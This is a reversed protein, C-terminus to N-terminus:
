VGVMVHSVGGVKVASVVCAHKEERLFAESHRAKSRFPEAWYHHAVFEDVTLFQPKQILERNVEFECPKGGVSHSEPHPVRKPIEGGFHGGCDCRLAHPEIQFM